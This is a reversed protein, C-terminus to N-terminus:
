RTRHHIVRSGRSACAWSSSAQVTPAAYPCALATRSVQLIDADHADEPFGDSDRGIDRRIDRNEVDTGFRWTHASPTFTAQPSLTAGSLPYQIKHKWTLVSVGAPGEGSTHHAVKSPKKERRSRITAVVTSCKLPAYVNNSAAPM